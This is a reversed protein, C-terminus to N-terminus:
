ESPTPTPLASLAVQLQNDGYDDEQVAGALDPPNLILTFLEGWAPSVGLFMRDTGGCPKLGLTYFYFSQGGAGVLQVPVSYVAPNGTNHITLALFETDVALSAGESHDPHVLAVDLASIALNTAPPCAESTYPEFPHVTLRTEVVNDSPDTEAQEPAQWYFRNEVIDRLERNVSLAVVYEGDRLERLFPSMREEDTIEGLTLRVEGSGEAPIDAQTHNTFITQPLETRAIAAWALVGEHAAEGDNYVVFSFELVDGVQPREPLITLSDPDIWLNSAPELEQLTPPVATPEVPPATRTPSLVLTVPADTPGNPACSALLLMLATFGYRSPSCLSPMRRAAKM